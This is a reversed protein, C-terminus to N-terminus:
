FPPPERCACIRDVIANRAVAADVSVAYSFNSTPNEIVSTEGPIEGSMDIICDARQFKCVSPEGIMGLAALPDHLYNFNSNKFKRWIFIQEALIQGAHGAEKIRLRDSEQLPVKTTVNLGYATIPIGSRMVIDAAAVDCKVNHEAVRGKARFDGAMLHLHKVNRAFRDDTMIATAINTLPGIALIELESTHETASEVLFTVGNKSTEIAAQDLGPM